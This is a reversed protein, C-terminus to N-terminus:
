QLHCDPHNDVPFSTVQHQHHIQSLIRWHYTMHSHIHLAQHIDVPLPVQIMLQLQPLRRHHSVLHSSNHFVQSIEEPVNYQYLIQLQPLNKQHCISQHSRMNSHIYFAQPIKVPIMVPIMFQIVVLLIRKHFTLIPHPPLTLPLPLPLLLLASTQRLLVTTPKYNTRCPTM